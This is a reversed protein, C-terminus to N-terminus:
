SIMDKNIFKKSYFKISCNSGKFSKHLLTTLNSPKM